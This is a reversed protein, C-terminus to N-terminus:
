QYDGKRSNTDHTKAGEGEDVSGVATVVVDNNFAAGDLNLTTLIVLLITQASGVEIGSLVLASIFVVPVYHPNYNPVTRATLQGVIVKVFVM